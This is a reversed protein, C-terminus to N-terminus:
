RTRAQLAAVVMRRFEGEPLNEVIDSNGERAVDMVAANRVLRAVGLPLGVMEPNRDVADIADQIVKEAAARYDTATSPNTM